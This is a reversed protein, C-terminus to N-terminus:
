CTHTYNPALVAPKDQSIELLTCTASPRTGKPIAIMAECQPCVKKHEKHARKNAKRESKSRAEDATSVAPRKQGAVAAAKRPPPPPLRMGDVTDVPAGIGAM